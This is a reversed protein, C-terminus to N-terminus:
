CSYSSAIPSSRCRPANSFLFQVLSFVALAIFFYSLNWQHTKKM